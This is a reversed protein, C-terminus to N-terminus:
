CYGSHALVHWGGPPLGQTDHGSASSEKIAKAGLPAALVIRRSHRCVLWPQCVEAEGQAVFFVARDEAYVTKSLKLDTRINYQGKALFLIGSPDFFDNLKAL